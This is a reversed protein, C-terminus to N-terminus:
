TGSGLHGLFALVYLAHVWSCANYNLLRVDLSPPLVGSFRVLVILKAVNLAYEISPM